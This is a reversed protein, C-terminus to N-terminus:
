KKKGEREARQKARRERMYEAIKAARKRALADSKEKQADILAHYHANIEAIKAAPLCTSAYDAVIVDLLTGLGSDAFRAHNPLAKLADLIELTPPAFFLDRRVRRLGEPKAAHRKGRNANSVASYDKM